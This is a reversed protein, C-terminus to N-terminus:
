AAYIVTDLRVIIEGTDIRKQVKWISQVFLRASPGPIETRLDLKTGQTMEVGASAADQM